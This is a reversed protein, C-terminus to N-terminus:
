VVIPRSSWSVFKCSNPISTPLDSTRASASSQFIGISSYLESGQVFLDVSQLHLGTMIVARVHMTRTSSICAMCFMPVRSVSLLAPSNASGGWKSSTSSAALSRM